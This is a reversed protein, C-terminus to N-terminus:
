RCQDGRDDPCKPSHSDIVRFRRARVANNLMFLM